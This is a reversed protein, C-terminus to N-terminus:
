GSIMALFARVSRAWKFKLAQRLISLEFLSNKFGEKWFAASIERRLESFETALAQM